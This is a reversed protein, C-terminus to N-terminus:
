GRGKRSGGGGLGRPRKASLTACVRSLLSSKFRREEEEAQPHHPPTLQSPNLHSLPVGAVCVRVCACVCVCMCMLVCVCV